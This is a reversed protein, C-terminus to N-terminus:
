INLYSFESICKMVIQTRSFHFTFLGFLIIIINNTNDNYSFTRNQITSKQSEQTRKTFHENKNAENWNNVKSTKTKKKGEKEWGRWVDWEYRQMGDNRKTGNLEISKKLAFSCLLIHITQTRTHTTKRLLVMKTFTNYSIPYFSVLRVNYYLHFIKIFMLLETYPHTFQHILFTLSGTLRSCRTTLMYFAFFSFPFFSNRPFHCARMCARVFLCSSTIWIFSNQVCLVNEPMCLTASIFHARSWCYVGCRIVFAWWYRSPPPNKQQKTKCRVIRMWPLVGYPKSSFLSLLFVLLWRVAFSSWFDLMIFNTTDFRTSSNNIQGRIMWRNPPMCIICRAFIAHAM